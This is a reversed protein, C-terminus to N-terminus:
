GKSKVYLDVLRHLTVYQSPKGVMYFRQLSLEMVLKEISVSIDKPKKGAALQKDIDHLLIFGAIFTGTRGVGGACHCALLSSAPDHTERVQLLLALLEEANFGTNDLWHDVAFYRIRYPKITSPEDESELPVNLYSAKNKPNVGATQKWYPFSKLRGQEKEPTLRVLHTVGQNHLLNFFARTRDPTRPAELAFFRLGHAIVTSSNYSDDTHNYDFAILHDRFYHHGTLLSQAIQFDKNSELTEQEPDDYWTRIRWQNLAAFEKLLVDEPKDMTWPAYRAQELHRKERQEIGQEIEQFRAERQVKPLRPFTKIEKALALTGVSFAMMLCVLTKTLVAM